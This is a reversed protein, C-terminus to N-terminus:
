KYVIYPLQQTQESTYHTVYDLLLFWWIIDLEMLLQVNKPNMLPQTPKSHKDDLGSYGNNNLLSHLFTGVKWSCSKEISM